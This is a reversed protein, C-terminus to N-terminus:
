LLFINTKPIKPKASGLQTLRSRDVTIVQEDRLSNARVKWLNVERELRGIEGKREKSSGVM